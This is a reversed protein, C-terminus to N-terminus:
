KMKFQESYKNALDKAQQLQEPTLTKELDDRSKSSDTFGNTVAVSFWAYAEVPNASVGIGDRYFVGMKNQARGYGQEASKRIWSVAQELNKQLGM